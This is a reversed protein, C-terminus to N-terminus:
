PAASSQDGLRFKMEGEPTWVITVEGLTTSVVLRLDELEAKTFDEVADFRLVIADDVLENSEATLTNQGYHLRFSPRLPALERPLEVRISDRGLTPVVQVSSSEAMGESLGNWSEQMAQSWGNPKAADKQARERKLEAIKYEDTDVWLIAEDTLLIARHRVVDDPGKETGFITTKVPLTGFETTANGNVAPQTEAAFTVYDGPHMDTFQVLLVLTANRLVIDTRNVVSVVVGEGWMPERVQLDLWADEPFLERVQDGLLDQAFALDSLVFDWQKQTRRRAFHDLVRRRGAEVDGAEFEDKALHLEPSFWGAGRMTDQYSEIIVTGDRTKRLWNRMAYPNLMDTLAEAQKPFYAASQQLLLRAKASDGQRQAMAGLMLLAPASYGPHKDVFASLLQDAEVWKEPNESEILARALLLHAERESPAQAIAERAALETAEWDGEVAALYARDRLVCLRDWQEIYGYYVDSYELMAEFLEDRAEGLIRIQQREQEQRDRMQDLLVKAQERDVSFGGTPGLTGWEGEADVVSLTELMMEKTMDWLAQQEEQEVQIAYLERVKALLEGRAELIEPAVGRYDQTGVAELYSEFDDYSQLARDIEHITRITKDIDVPVGPESAANEMAELTPDFTEQAEVSQAELARKEALSASYSWWGWLGVVTGVGLLSLGLPVGLCGLWRRGAGNNPGAEDAVQQEM